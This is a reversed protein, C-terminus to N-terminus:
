PSNWDHWAIEGASYLATACNVLVTAPLRCQEVPAVSPCSSSYQPTSYVGNESTDAGSKPTPPPPIACCAVLTIHRRAPGRVARCFGAFLLLWFAACSWIVLLFHSFFCGSKSTIRCIASFRSSVSPTQCTGTFSQFM